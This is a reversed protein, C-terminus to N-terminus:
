ASLRWGDHCPILRDSELDLIYSEVILAPEHDRIAKTVATLRRFHCEIPNSLHESGFCRGYELCDLHDVLLVKSVTMHRRVAGLDEYFFRFYSSNIRLSAGVYNFYGADPFHHTIGRNCRPDFCRVVLDVTQATGHTPM